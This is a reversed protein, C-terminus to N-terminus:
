KLFLMERYTPLPWFDATVVTELHDAAARVVGMAPILHDRIHAAHELPDGDHMEMAEELRGIAERLRNAYGVFRELASKQEPAPVGAALTKGVADALLAQHRLAAPLIQTRAIHGMTEAEIL